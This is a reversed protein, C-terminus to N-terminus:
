LSINYKSLIDLIERTHENMNVIGESNILVYIDEKNYNTVSISNGVTDFVMDETEYENDVDECYRILLTLDSPNVTGLEEKLNNFYLTQTISFVDSDPYIVTTENFAYKYITGNNTIVIGDRDGTEENYHSLRVLPLYDMNLDYENMDDIISGGQEMIEPEINNRNAQIILAVTLTCIVVLCAVLKTDFFKKKSKNKM